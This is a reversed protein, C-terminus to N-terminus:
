EPTRVRFVLKFRDSRLIFDKKPDGHGITYYGVEKTSSLGNIWISGQAGAKM